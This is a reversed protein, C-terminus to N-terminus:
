LKKLENNVMDLYFKTKNEKLKNIDFNLLYKKAYKKITKNSM